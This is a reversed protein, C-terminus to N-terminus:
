WAVSRFPQFLGGVASSNRGNETSSEPGLVLFKSLFCVVVTSNVQLWCDQIIDCMKSDWHDAVQPRMGDM